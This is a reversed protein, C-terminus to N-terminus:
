LSTKVSFAVQIYLLYNSILELTALLDLFNRYKFKGIRVLADIGDSCLGRGLCHILPVITQMLFYVEALFILYFVMFVVFAFPYHLSFLKKM